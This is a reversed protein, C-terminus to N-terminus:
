AYVCSCVASVAFGKMLEAAKTTDSSGSTVLMELRLYREQAPCYTSM